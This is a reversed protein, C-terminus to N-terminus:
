GLRQIQDYTGLRANRAQDELREGDDILAGPWEGAHVAHQVGDQEIEGLLLKPLAGLRQHLPDSMLPLTVGAGLWWLSWSSM